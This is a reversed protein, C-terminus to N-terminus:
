SKSRYFRSVAEVVRHQQAETIGPFMPLALVCRSASEAVPFDGSTHGNGSFVPHYPLPMDYYVRTQIGSSELFGALEDRMDAKVVFLNYTHRDGAAETAPLVIRHGPHSTEDEGPSLGARWFLTRYVEAA